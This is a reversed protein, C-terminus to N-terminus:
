RLECQRTPGAANATVKNASSFAPSGDPWGDVGLRLSGNNQVVLDVGDGGNNIWSIIRNGGSGATLSAANLWGTLTFESLNKLGDITANSEVYYNGITTGFDFANEGSGAYVPAVNGTAAPINASKTFVVPLTGANVPPTNEEQVLRVLPLSQSLAFHPALLCIGVFVAHIFNGSLLKKM